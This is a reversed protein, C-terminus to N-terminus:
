AGAGTKRRAEARLQTFVYRVIRDRDREHISTFSIGTEFAGNRAHGGLCRVVKGLMQVQGGQPLDFYIRVPTGVPIPPSFRLKCGGGSLDELVGPYARSFRGDLAVEVQAPLSTASRVFQRRQMRQFSAADPLALVLDSGRTGLVPAIFSYIADAQPFSLQLRDHDVPVLSGGRAPRSICFQDETVALVTVEFIEPMGSVALVLDLRQGKAIM